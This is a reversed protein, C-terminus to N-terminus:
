TTRPRIDSGPKSKPPQKSQEKEAPKPSAPKAPKKNQDQM